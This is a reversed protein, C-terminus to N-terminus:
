APIIRHRPQPKVPKPTQGASALIGNLQAFQKRREAIGTGTITAPGQHHSQDRFKAGHKSL